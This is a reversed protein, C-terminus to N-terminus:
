SPGLIAKGKDLPRLRNGNNSHYSKMVPGTKSRAHSTDIHGKFSKTWGLVAVWENPKQSHGMISNSAIPLNPRAHGTPKELHNLRTMKNGGLINSVKIPDTSNPLDIQSHPSNGHTTIMGQLCKDKLHGVIGCTMCLLDLNEYEIHQWGNVVWISSVVPKDVSIEVCVRAYRARSVSNTTFDVLQPESWSQLILCPLNISVNWLYNLFDFRVFSGLVKGMLTKGWPARLLRLQEATFSVKLPTDPEVPEEMDEQLQEMLSSITPFFRNAGNVVDKVFAKVPTRNQEESSEIDMRHIGNSLIGHGSM